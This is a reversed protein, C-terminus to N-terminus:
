EVLKKIGSGGYGESANKNISKKATGKSITEELAM